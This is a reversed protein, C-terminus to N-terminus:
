LVSGDIFGMESIYIKMPLQDSVLYLYLKVIDFYMTTPNNFKIFKWFYGEIVKTCNLLLFPCSAYSIPFQHHFDLYYSPAVVEAWLKFTGILM